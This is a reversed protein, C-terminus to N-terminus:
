SKISNLNIFNQVSDIAQEENNFWNIYENRKFWTRQRKALLKDGKILELKTEALTLEGNIFKVLTKYGIGALAQNDKGYKEVLLKVEEAFGAKLMSDIRKEIRQYLVERECVLGIVLTNPRIRKNQKPSEKSLHRPNDIDKPYNERNFEYDFIVSDIYLGSGGVMIPLKGKSSINEIANQADIKFQHASYREGPVIIDLLHHKIKIQDQKSPKATGINMEKYITRSDAAIIEGNFKKAIVMAMASKGSATEGVIVILPAVRAVM